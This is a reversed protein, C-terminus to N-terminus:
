GRELHDEHIDISAGDFYEIAYIAGPPFHQFHAGEPRDKFVGIVSALAGPRYASPADRKVRVLDDYTYKNM